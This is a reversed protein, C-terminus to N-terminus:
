GVYYYQRIEGPCPVYKSQDALIENVRLILVLLFTRVLESIDALPTSKEDKMSLADSILLSKEIQPEEM